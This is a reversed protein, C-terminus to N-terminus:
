TYAICVLECSLNSICYMQKFVAKERSIKSKQLVTLCMQSYVAPRPLIEWKLSM